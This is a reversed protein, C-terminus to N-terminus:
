RDGRGQGHLISSREGGGRSAPLQFIFPSRAENACISSMAAPKSPCQSLIEIQEDARRRRQQGAGARDGRGRPDSQAALVAMALRAARVSAINRRLHEGVSSRSVHDDPMALPSRVM